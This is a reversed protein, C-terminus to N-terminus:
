LNTLTITVTAYSELAPAGNDIVAIVLSFPGEFGEAFLTPDAVTLLGSVPDIAFANADNGDLISFALNQGSDPDTAVVTGIPTGSPSRADVTFSQEPVLHLEGRVTSVPNL